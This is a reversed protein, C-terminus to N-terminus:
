KPAPMSSTSGINVTGSGADVKFNHVNAHQVNGSLTFLYDHVFTNSWDKGFYADFLGVAPDKQASYSDYAAQRKQVVAISDPSFDPQCSDAHALYAELYDKFAPFVVSQLKSEDVFRGFLMNSSFFSTDDYIKGSLQGHLDPYKRRIDSLFNIHKEAYEATPHLPQCDIVNLIRNKGLSILDVGLLPLDYEYKPYWLTNFM